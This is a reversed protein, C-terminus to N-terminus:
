TKLRPPASEGHSVKPGSQGLGGGAEGGGNEGDEPGKGGKRRSENQLKKEQGQGDVSGALRAQPKTKAAQLMRPRQGITGNHLTQSCAVAAWSFPLYLQKLM